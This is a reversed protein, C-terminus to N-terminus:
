RGESSARITGGFSQVKQPDTHRFCKAGGSNKAAVVQQYWFRMFHNFGSRQNYHESSLSFEGKENRKLENSRVDM